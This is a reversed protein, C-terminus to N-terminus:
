FCTGCTPNTNGPRRPPGVAGTYTGIDVNKAVLPADAALPTLVASRGGTGTSITVTACTVRQNDAIVVCVAHDGATSPIAVGFPRVAGPADSPFLRINYGPASGTPQDARYTAVAFGGGGVTPDCQTAAGNLVFLRGGDDWQAESLTATACPAQNWPIATSSHAPHGPAASAPASALVAGAVLVATAAARSRKIPM